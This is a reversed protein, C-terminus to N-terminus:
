EHMSPYFNIWTLLLPWQYRMVANSFQAMMQERLPKNGTRCLNMVQVLAAVKDIRGLTLFM